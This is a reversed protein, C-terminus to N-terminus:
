PKAGSDGKLWRGTKPDFEDLHKMMGIIADLAKDNLQGKFTPMANSYGQVVYEGPNLISSRIYDEPTAFRKGAGILSATTSGDTFAETGSQVRQVLGKWSPGIGNTGDLSHCQQCRAYLKPGAKFYLEEEPIKDLWESQDKLWAEFAPRALVFVRRNMNSHGTGCYETCFLHHYTDTGTPEDAQFWLSGYRGPVCDQKVRFDPIYLSHLVDQSRLVLRIPEGAPVYLDDSLVGNPYKFSWAWKQATVQIEYAGRPPTRMGIFGEVGLARSGAFGLWFIVVVLILPIILWTLEMPMHHTPGDTRFAHGKPARYKVVFVLMLVTVLAFFFYCLWNIFNFMQDYGPGFTSAPVPLWFGTSPIPKPDAALVSAIIASLHSM